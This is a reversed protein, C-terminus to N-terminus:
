VDIAAERSGPTGSVIVDVDVGLAGRWIRADRSESEREREGDMMVNRVDKERATGTAEERFLILLLLLLLLM